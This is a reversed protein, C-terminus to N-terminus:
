ILFQIGPSMHCEVATDAVHLGQKTKYNRLSAVGKPQIGIDGAPREM